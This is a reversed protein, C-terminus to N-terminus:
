SGFGEHVSWCWAACGSKHFSCSFRMEDAGGSTVGSCWFWSAEQLAVVLGVRTRSKREDGQSATGEGTMGLGSGIALVSDESPYEAWVPLM